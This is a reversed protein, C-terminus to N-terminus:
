KAVALNSLSCSATTSAFVPDAGNLATMIKGVVTASGTGSLSGNAQVTLNFPNAGNKLSVVAAGGQMSVDYQVLVHAQACDIVANGDNFQIKLGGPNSFVGTMRPGPAVSAQSTPTEGSLTDMVTGLASLMTPAGISLGTDLTVKPGPTLTGINCHVTIPAYIPTRSVEVGTKLNTVVNYGTIEDGTIDQSAPGSAKGDAGLTVVLDQPTNAIKLIYKGGSVNVTYSHNGHVMKGCNTIAVASNDFDFALGSSSQFTGLIFLGAYGSKTLASLDIGMMQKLGEGMGAGVCQLGTGGLEFCRRIAIQAPDSTPPLATGATNSAQQTNAAGSTQWLQQVTSMKFTTFLSAIFQNNGVYTGQPNYTSKALSQFGNYYNTIIKVEDATLQNQSTRPGALTGIIQSLEQFASLQRYATDQTNAGKLQTLIQDVTPFEKLYAPNLPGTPAQSAAPPAPTPTPPAVTCGQLRGTMSSWASLGPTILQGNQEENWQCWQDTAGFPKCTIVTYTLGNACRYPTNLVPPAPAQAFAAACAAVLTALTTLRSIKRCNLRRSNRKTPQKEISLHNRLLTEGLQAPHM